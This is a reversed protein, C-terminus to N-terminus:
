TWTKARLISLVHYPLNGCILAVGGLYATPSISEFIFLSDGVIRSEMAEPTSLSESNTRQARHSWHILTMKVADTRRATLSPEFVVVRIWNRTRDSVHINRSNIINGAM